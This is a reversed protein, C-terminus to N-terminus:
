SARNERMSKIIQRVEEDLPMRLSVGKPKKHRTQIVIGPLPLRSLTIKSINLDRQIKSVIKELAEDSARDYYTYFCKKNLIGRLFTKGKRSKENEALKKIM